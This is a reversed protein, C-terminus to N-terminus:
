NLSRYARTKWRNRRMFLSIQEVPDLIAQTRESSAGFHQGRLLRLQQTLWDVQRHLATIEDEKKALLERWEANCKEDTKM